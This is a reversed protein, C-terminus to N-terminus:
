FGQWFLVVRGEIRHPRMKAIFTSHHPSQRAHSSRQNGAIFGAALADGM